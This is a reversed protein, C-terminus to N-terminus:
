PCALHRPFAGAGGVGGLAVGFGDDVLGPLGGAGSIQTSIASPRLRAPIRRTRCNCSSGRCSCASTAPELFEEAAFVGRRLGRSRGAQGARVQYGRPLVRADEAQGRGEAGEECQALGGTGAEEDGDTRDQLWPRGGAASWRGTRRSVPRRTLGRPRLLTRPTCRVPQYGGPRPEGSYTAQGQTPRANM